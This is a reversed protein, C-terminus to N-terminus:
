YLSDIYDSLYDYDGEYEAWDDPLAVEDSDYYSDDIFSNGVFDDVDIQHYTTLDDIVISHKYLGPYDGAIVANDIETILQEVETEVESGNDVYNFIDDNKIITAVNLEYNEKDRYYTYYDVKYTFLREYSEYMESINIQMNM